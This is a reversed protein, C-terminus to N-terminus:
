QCGTQELLERTPADLAKVEENVAQWKVQMVQEAEQYVDGELVEGREIIKRWERYADLAAKHYDKLTDPPSLRERWDVIHATVLDLNLGLPITNGIDACASAYELRTVDDGQGFGAELREEAEDAVQGLRLGMLGLCGSDDLFERERHTMASLAKQQVGYARDHSSNAGRGWRSPKNDMSLQVRAGWFEELGLPPQVAQLSAIWEDKPEGEEPEAEMLEGCVSAFATVETSIPEWDPPTPATSWTCATSVMAVLVIAVAGTAKEFTPLPAAEGLSFGCHYACM